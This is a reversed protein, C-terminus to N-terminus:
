PAVLYIYIANVGDCYYTVPIGTAIATLLISLKARGSDDDVESDSNFTIWKGDSSHAFSITKNGDVEVGVYKVIKEFYKKKECNTEVAFASSCFLGIFSFLLAGVIPFNKRVFIM